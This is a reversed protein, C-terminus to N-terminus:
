GPLVLAEWKKTLVDVQEQDLTVRRPDTSEPRDAAPEAATVPPDDGIPEIVLTVPTGGPPATDPNREWELLANSDSQLQPVDFVSNEFNVLSVIQGTLDAIYVGDPATRSGTFVFTQRPMPEGGNIGRILREVPQTVPGNPTTWEVRIRVPPGTPPLFAQKAESWRIPQGPQLGLVLAAAHIDSPRALTRVVTEHDATGAVVCVFELPMDVAVSEAAIRLQRTNLNAQVHPLEFVAPQEAPPDAPQLLATLLLLALM